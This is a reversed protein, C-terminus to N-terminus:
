LNDHQIVQVGRWSEGVSSLKMNQLHPTVFHSTNLRQESSAAYAPSFKQKLINLPVDKQKWIVGHKEIPCGGLGQVATGGRRKFKVNSFLASTLIMDKRGNNKVIVATAMSLPNLSIIYNISLIGATCSLDVQFFADIDFHSMRSNGKTKTPDAGDAPVTFPVEEFADEKWSVILKYSPVYADPMGVFPINNTEIFQIGFQEDLTEPVSLTTTPSASAKVMRPKLLSLSLSAM